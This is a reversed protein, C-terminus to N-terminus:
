KRSEHLTRVASRTARGCSDRDATRVRRFQSARIRALDNILFDLQSRTEVELRTKVEARLLDADQTSLAETDGHRRPSFDKNPAFLNHSQASAIDRPACWRFISITRKPASGPRTLNDVGHIICPYIQNSTDKHIKQIM